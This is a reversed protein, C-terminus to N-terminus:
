PLKDVEAGFSRLRALIERKNENKERREKVLDEDVSEYGEDDGGAKGARVRDGSDTEELGRLYEGLAELAERRAQLLPGVLKRKSLMIKPKLIGEPGGNFSASESM